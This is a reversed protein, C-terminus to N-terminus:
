QVVTLQLPSIRNIGPSLKEFHAKAEDMTFLGSEFLLFPSPSYSLTASAPDAIFLYMLGDPGADADLKYISLNDGLSKLDPKESASAKAKIASWVAEFDAANEPKIYWIIGGVGHPFKFPDAQPAAAQAGQEQGQQPAQQEPAAPADQAGANVAVCLVTALGAGVVIRRVSASAFGFVEM